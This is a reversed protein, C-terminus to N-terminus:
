NDTPKEELRDIVLVPMMRKQLELKLGLQKNVADPLSLAGNPDQAGQQARVLGIGSFSMTFDFAGELGTSDLVATRVYGGAFMPLQEAFQAMTM